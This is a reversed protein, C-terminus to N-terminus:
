YKDHERIIDLVSFTRKAIRDTEEFGNSKM